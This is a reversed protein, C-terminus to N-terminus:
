AARVLAQSRDLSIAPSRRFAIKQMTSVMVLPDDEGALVRNFTDIAPQDLDKILVFARHTKPAPSGIEAYFAKFSAERELIMEVRGHRLIDVKRGEVNEWLIGLSADRDYWYTPVGDVTMVLGQPALEYRIAPM